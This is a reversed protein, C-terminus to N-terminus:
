PTYKALNSAAAMGTREPYTKGAQAAALRDEARSTITGDKALYCYADWELGSIRNEKGWHPKVGAKLNREALGMYAEAIFEAPNARFDEHTPDIGKNVWEAGPTPYYITISPVAGVAFLEDFGKFLSEHSELGGVFNSKASGSGLRDLTYKFAAFHDKKGRSVKFKGIHYDTNALDWRKDDWVELNFSLDTAGAEILSDLQRTNSIPPPSLVFLIEANKNSMAGKITKIIEAFFLTEKESYFAGSAMFINDVSMEKQAATVALALEELLREDSIPEGTTSDKRRQPLTGCFRCKIGPKDMMCKMDPYVRLANVGMRHVINGYPNGYPSLVFNYDHQRPIDIVAVDREHKQLLFHNADRVIRYPSKPNARVEAAFPYIYGPFLIENPAQVRNQGSSQAEKCSKGALEKAARNYNYLGTGARVMNNDALFDMLGPTTFNVGEILLDAKLLLDNYKPIRLENSMTDNREFQTTTNGTVANKITSM